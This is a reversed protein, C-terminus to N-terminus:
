KTGPQSSLIPPPVLTDASLDPESSPLAPDEVQPPLLRAPRPEASAPPEAQELIQPLPPPPEGCRDQGYLYLDDTQLLHALDVVATWLNQLATIYGQEVTLLGQQTTFMDLFAIKEPELERRQRVNKFALIQSPLIATRYRLVLDRNDQYREFADALRATLDNKARQLDEVAFALQGRAQLIAGRNQDWVPLTVGASVGVSLNAPGPPTLDNLITGLLVVDPVPTVEALRLNYRAKQIAIEAAKVDTHNTLVHELVRDYRFLPIPADPRGALATPPMEPRNLTVALQKWASIYRHRAAVLANRAQEAQVYTVLPEYRSTAEGGGGAVAVMRKQFNYAQDTLDALIRSVLVNEQAVLVAFYGARVQAALDSQAARFALEANQLDMEAAAQALKLKGMTKITQQIAGGVLPGGSVSAGTAQYNAIPNPYAGAQIMAGRAAKINAMAQRLKPSNAAAIQQLDALTLARGEPGPAPELEDGLPTLPPFTKEVAAEWEKEKGKVPLPLKPVPRAQAEREGPLEQPIPFWQKSTKKTSRPPPLEEVGLVPPKPLPTIESGIVTTAQTDNPRGLPGSLAERVEDQNSACGFTLLGACLVAPLWYRRGSSRGM